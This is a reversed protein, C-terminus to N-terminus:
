LCALWGADVDMGYREVPAPAKRAVRRQTSTRRKSPKRVKAYRFTRGDKTRNIWDNKGMLSCLARSVQARTLGLEAAIESPTGTLGRWLASAIRSTNTTTTM